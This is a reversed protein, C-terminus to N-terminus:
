SYRQATLDERVLVARNKSEQHRINTNNLRLISGLQSDLGIWRHVPKYLSKETIRNLVNTSRTSDKLYTVISTYSIYISM